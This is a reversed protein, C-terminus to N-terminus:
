KFTVNIERCGEISDDIWTMNFVPQCGTKDLMHKSAHAHAQWEIFDPEFRSFQEKNMKMVDDVCTLKIRESTYHTTGLLATDQEISTKLYLLWRSFEDANMSALETFTKIM